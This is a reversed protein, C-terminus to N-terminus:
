TVSPCVCTEQRDPMLLTTRPKNCFIHKM